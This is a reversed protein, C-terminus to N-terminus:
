LKPRLTKLLPMKLLSPRSQAQARNPLDLNLISLPQASLGSRTLGSIITFDSIKLQSLPKKVLDPIESSNVMQRNEDAHLVAIQQGDKDYVISSEKQNTLAAPDWKPTQAVATIVFILLVILAIALISGSTLLFVRWKSIRRQKRSPRTPKRPSAM